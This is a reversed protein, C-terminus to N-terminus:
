KKLLKYTESIPKGDIEVQLIYVGKILETIAEDNFIVEHYGSNLVMKRKYILSGNLDYLMFQLNFTSNREPLGLVATFDKEFPNPYLQQLYIDLPKLHKIVEDRDGKILQIEAIGTKHIEYTSIEKMNILSNASVDYLWLYSEEPLYAQDWRLTVSEKGQNSVQFSWEKINVFDIGRFDQSLLENTNQSFFAGFDFLFDPLLHQDYNDLGEQASELEGIAFLHYALDKKSVSIPLHWELPNSLKPTLSAALRNSTQTQYPIVIEVDSSGNYKIFGGQYVKLVTSNSFTGDQYIILEEAENLSPNAAEVNRWDLDFLYPNGIQNWGPKLTITFPASTVDVTQGQVLNISQAEKMIVWYGEGPNVENFTTPGYEETVGKDNSYRFMRWKKINAQNGNSPLDKFVFSVDNPNFVYPLSIIQYDEISTGFNFFSSADTNVSDAEKLYKGIRKTDSYITDGSVDIIEFYYQIGLPDDDFEEETITSQYFGNLFSIEGERFTGSETIGKRYFKIADMTCDDRLSVGVDVKDTAQTLEIYPPTSEEQIDIGRLVNFETGFESTRDDTTLSISYTGSIGEPVTLRIEEANTSIVDSSAVTIDGFKLTMQSFENEFNNGSITVETCSTGSLPSINTIEPPIIKRFNENNLLTKGRLSASIPHVGRELEIPVQFAFTSDTMEVVDSVSIQADGISVEWEFPSSSKSFRRGMFKVTDGSEGELGQISIFQQYNITLTDTRNSLGAKDIIQFYYRLMDKGNFVSSNITRRITEDEAVIGVSDWEQDTSFHFYVTDIACLERITFGVDVGADLEAKSVYNVHSQNLIDAGSLAFYKINFTDIRDDTEVSVSLSDSLGAPLRLILTNNSTAVVNEAEVLTANLRIKVDSQNNSFNNGRITINDCTKGTLPSVETISPPIIMRFTEPAEVTQGQVTVSVIAEGRPLNNPVVFEITSNSLSIINDVDILISGIKVEIEEKLDPFKDGAIGLVDGAEGEVVTLENITPLTLAEFTFIEESTGEQDDYIIRIPVPERNLGAPVEVVLQNRSDGSGTIQAEFQGFYVRNLSPVKGFNEGYITVTEGAYAEYNDMGSLSPPDYKPLVFRQWYVNGADLWSVLYNNQDSNYAVDQISRNLNPIPIEDNYVLNNDVVDYGQALSGLILDNFWFLAYENRSANYLAHPKSSGIDVGGQYQAVSLNNPVKEYVISPTSSNIVTINGGVIEYNFLYNTGSSSLGQSFYQQFSLFAKRTIPNYTLQPSFAYGYYHSNASALKNLNADILDLQVASSQGNVFLSIEFDSTSPDSNELMAVLYQRSHDLKLVDLDHLHQIGSMDIPQNDSIAFTSGSVDLNLKAGVADESYANRALYVVPFKNGFSSEPCDFELGNIDFPDTIIETEPIAVSLNSTNYTKAFVNYNNSSIREQWLITLKTNSQNLVMKPKSFDGTSENVKISVSERQLNKSNIINLYLDNSVESIMYYEEARKDYITTVEGSGEIFNVAEDGETVEFSQEPAFASGSFGNNIAQVSWHYLGIPLDKILTSTAPYVNGNLYTKLTGDHHANVTKITDLGRRIYVNYFLSASNAKPDNSAGWELLVNGAESQTSKLNAPVSPSQATNESINKLIKSSGGQLSIIDLKGHNYFDGIILKTYEEALEIYQVPQLEGDVLNLLKLVANEFVVKEIVIVEQVGDNNLDYVGHIDFADTDIYSANLYIEDLSEFVNNTNRYYWYYYPPAGYEYEIVKNLLEVEGDGDLDSEWMKGFNTGGTANFLEHTRVFTGSRNTTIINNAIIDLDGDKDYDSFFTNVGLDPTSAVEFSKSENQIYLEENLVDLDGDQDIDAVAINDNNGGLAAAAYNLTGDENYYIANYTILDMFGNGDIDAWTGNRSTSFYSTSFSLTNEIGNNRFLTNGMLFDMDKDNDIDVATTILTNALGTGFPNGSQLALIPKYKLKASYDQTEGYSYNGCAIVNTTNYALVVRLMFAEDYNVNNPVQIEFNRNNTVTSNTSQFAKEGVDDFDKDANWDIFIAMNANSSGNCSGLKIYGSLKEGPIIDITIDTFDQYTQCSGDNVYDVGKLNFKDILEYSANTAASACYDSPNVTQALLNFSVGIVLISTTVFRIYKNRAM